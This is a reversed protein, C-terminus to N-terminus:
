FNYLLIIYFEESLLGKITFYNLILLTQSNFIFQPNNKAFSQSNGM